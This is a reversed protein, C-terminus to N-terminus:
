GEANLGAIVQAFYGASDRPLLGSPARARSGKQDSRVHRRRQLRRQRLHAPLASARPGPLGPNRRCRWPESRRARAIAGTDLGVLGRWRGPGHPYRRKSPAAFFLGAAPTASGPRSTRSRAASDSHRCAHQEPERRGDTRYRVCPFFRRVAHALTRFVRADTVMMASLQRTVQAILCARRDRTM